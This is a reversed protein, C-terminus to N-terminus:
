HVDNIFNYGSQLQIFSANTCKISTWNLKTQHRYRYQNRNRYRSITFMDLLSMSYMYWGYCDIFILIVINMKGGRLVTVNVVAKDVETGHFCTWAGNITDDIRKELTLITINRLADQTIISKDKDLLSYCSVLPIPSLCYAHEEHLQNFFKVTFLLSNVKCKFSIKEKTASWTLCVDINCSQLELFFFWIM